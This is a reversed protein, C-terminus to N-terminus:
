FSYRNFNILPFCINIISIQIMLRQIGDDICRGLDIIEGTISINGAVLGAEIVPRQEVLPSIQWVICDPRVILM